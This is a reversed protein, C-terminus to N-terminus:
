DSIPVPCGGFTLTYQIAWKGSRSLSDTGKNSIQHKCLHLVVARLDWFARRDAGNADRCLSKSQNCRDRRGMPGCTKMKQASSKAREPVVNKGSSGTASVALESQQGIASRAQGRVKPTLM